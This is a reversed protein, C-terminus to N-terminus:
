MCAAMDSIRDTTISSTALGIHDRDPKLQGTYCQSTSALVLPSLMQVAGELLGATSRRRVCFVCCCLLACRDQIDALAPVLSSLSWFWIYVVILKGTSM